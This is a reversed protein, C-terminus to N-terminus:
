STSILRTMQEVFQVLAPSVDRDGFAEYRAVLFALDTGLRRGREFPAPRKRVGRTLWPLARRTVPM